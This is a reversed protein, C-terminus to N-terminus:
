LLCSMSARVADGLDGKSLVIKHKHYVDSTVCRFPVFLNNFNEKCQLTYPSFLELFEINMPIPSILSTPIMSWMGTTDKLSVNVGVWQPKPDLRSFRSINEPNITGTSWYQFDKSTFLEMMREPSWGCSYLSGVIAGMSTGTVYNVPIDNEELAKIVGVHAIGKAGGGSLVLGVTERKEGNVRITIFFASLLLLFIVSKKKM